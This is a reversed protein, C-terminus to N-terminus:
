KEKQDTYWLAKRFAAMNPEHDGFNMGTKGLHVYDM